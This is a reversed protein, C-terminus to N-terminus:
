CLGNGSSPLFEKSINTIAALESRVPDSNFKFGLSPSKKVASANFEKFKDWKDKPDDKYLDLIFHNGLSYSPMNYGDIRAPLDEITGDDNKKYHTGEIGKDVLNRLYPDTNLLTLFEM